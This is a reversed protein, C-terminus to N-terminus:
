QVRDNITEAVYVDANPAVAVGRAENFQGNGSGRSGWKGLFSGTSTFYQVRYNRTDMVYISGNPAVAIGQALNFQGNGSGTSGWKGEYVWAGFASSAALAAVFGFTLLRKM